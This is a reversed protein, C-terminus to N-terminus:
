DITVFENANLLYRCFAALGHKEILSRAAQRESDRPERGLALRWAASAQEEPEHSVQELRRAFASAQQLVFEHNLMALSQIATTTTSRTPTLNAPNPCDLTTLLPNPTTRVRFRYISRRLLAPEPKTVYTYVPAYEEKYDFERFGPGYMHTDLQGSVSLITDRMSEADLRRPNQRWLLRNSSDVQLAQQHSASHADVNSRQRYAASCCILRHIAKLSYRRLQLERALWDLLEPHSPMSGGLGMDSPTAVIGSGFHQQWMRNVIVRAMLPNQDATIWQALRLRREPDSASDPLAFNEVGAVCALAGPQVPETPQETDGRALLLVKPPVESQVAYVQEVDAITSLQKALDDMQRKLQTVQTEDAKGASDEVIPEIQLDTFCIQDHGIGNGDDTAVLTLFRATTPIPLDIADLGDDRGISERRYVVQGDLLVFVSAGARPTEGFYGVAGRLKCAQRTSKTRNPIAPLENLDFTILANAHLGFLTHGADKFETGGLKTSFQSHVPGNRIADWAKGSTSPIEHTRLGTSSLALGESANAGPILVGDVIALPSEVFKNVTANELYGRPEKITQGSIPDIGAGSQGSGLGNGGGAIDALDWGKVTLARVQQKLENIQRTLTARTESTQKEAVPSVARNGRKVGAFVSCISYYERQTIPDLKHDHCRACNITVGMTAAMVQTVMDDLDDARALRRLVPSPTEAQGVFDWPGAALFGTAVVSDPDDPHLADGAIQKQLFDIYPEDRNFSRIVWDRYRWAHERVQDREFGHTDAYHAIDLWHQAAREGYRPSDLLRDVLREVAHPDGDQEFQRIQESTPPLGHLDFALRRILTKRDAPPSFTLGHKQLDALLFLDIENVTAATIDAMTPQPPQGVQLPQWAWHELRADRKAAHRDEDTEVWMAGADIWERVLALEDPTLGKGEPPMRQSDDNSSIRQWLASQDSHGPVIAPSDKRDPFVFARADLRLDGSQKLPGHCKVCHQKLLPRIQAEFDIAGAASTSGARAWLVLCLIFLRAIM